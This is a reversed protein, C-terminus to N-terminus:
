PPRSAPLSCSGALRGRGAWRPLAAGLLPRPSPLTATPAEQLAAAFTTANVLAHAIMSPVLSGSRLALLM